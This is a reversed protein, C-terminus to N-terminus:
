FILFGAIAKGFFMEDRLNISCFSQFVAVVITLRQVDAWIPWTVNAKLKM